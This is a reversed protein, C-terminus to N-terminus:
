ASSPMRSIWEHSSNLRTSKRDVYVIDPRLDCILRSFSRTASLESKWRLIQRYWRNATLWSGHPIHHVDCGAAEYLAACSGTRGFVADVGWGRERLAKAILLGSMPSGSPEATFQVFLARRGRPKQADRQM